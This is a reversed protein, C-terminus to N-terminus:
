CLPKQNTLHSVDKLMSVKKSMESLGGDNQSELQELM